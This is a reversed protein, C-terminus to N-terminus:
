RSQFLLIATVREYDEVLVALDSLLRSVCSFQLMFEERKNAGGCLVEELFVLFAKAEQVRQNIPGYRTNLCQQAEYIRYLLALHHTDRLTESDATLTQKPSLQETEVRADADSAELIESLARIFEVFVYYLDAIFACVYDLPHADAIGPVRCQELATQIASIASMANTFRTVFSDSGQHQDRYIHYMRYLAQLAEREDSIGKEALNSSPSSAQTPASHQPPSKQMQPPSASIFGSRLFQLSQDIDRILEQRQENSLMTNFKIVSRCTFMTTMAHEFQWNQLTEDPMLGMM